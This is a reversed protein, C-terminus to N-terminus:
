PCAAAFVRWMSWSAASPVRKSVTIAGAGIVSGECLEIKV